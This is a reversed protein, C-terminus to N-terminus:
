LIVKGLNEPFTCAQGWSFVSLLRGPLPSWLVPVYDGSRGKKEHLELPLGDPDKFFTM